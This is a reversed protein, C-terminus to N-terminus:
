VNDMAACKLADATKSNGYSTKNYNIGLTKPNSLEIYNIIDKKHSKLHHHRSQHISCMKTHGCISTVEMFPMKPFKPNLIIETLDDISTGKQLRREHRIVRSKVVNESDTLKILTSVPIHDSLKPDTM